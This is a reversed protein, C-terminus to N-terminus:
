QYCLLAQRKVGHLRTKNMDITVIAGNELEASLKNLSQFVADFIIEPRADAARIQIVSPRDGHTSALIASFDLDRTLVMFSNERAYAMIETDPANPAGIASWHIAEIGRSSLLEAWRQALNMDILIKM